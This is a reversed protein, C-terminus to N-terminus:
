PAVRSLIDILATRDADSVPDLVEDITEAIVQRLMDVMAEGGPALSVVSVRADKDCATRIILGKRELLQISRTMQSKDRGVRRTLDQIAAPGMDGLALLIMSNGPGLKETDFDHAKDRLGVHLRRMLRDILFALQIDPM